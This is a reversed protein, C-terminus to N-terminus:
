QPETQTKSREAANGELKSTIHLSSLRHAPVLPVTGHRGLSNARLEKLGKSAPGWVLSPPTHGLSVKRGAPAIGEGGRCGTQEAAELSSWSGSTQFFFPHSPCSGNLAQKHSRKEDAHHQLYV